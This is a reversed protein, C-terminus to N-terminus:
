DATGTGSGTRGGNWADPLPGDYGEPVFACLPDSALPDVARACARPRSGGCVARDPCAGCTGRLSDTDRLREFRDANRYREVVSTERVDGASEPLFGSLYLEGTHSVLAFGGGATVGTRRGIGDGHGGQSGGDISLAMRRRGAGALAEIRRPTLSSTGSPTMTIRLGLDTGYEVLEVADERALPDGGSLVVLRGDGFERAEGLLRKGEATTWEDPHRDPDAEARCHKCALECAQTLEWILVFPRKDTDIDDYM